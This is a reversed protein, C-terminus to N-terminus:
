RPTPVEQHGCIPVKVHGRVGAMGIGVLVAPWLPSRSPEKTAM